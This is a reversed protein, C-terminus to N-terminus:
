HASDMRNLSPPLPGELLWGPAQPLLPSRDAIQQGFADGFPLFSQLGFQAPPQLAGRLFPQLVSSSQLPPLSPHSIIARYLTLMLPSALLTPQPLRSLDTRGQQGRKRM